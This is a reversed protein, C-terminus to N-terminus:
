ALREVVIRNNELWRKIPLKHRRKTIAYICNYASTRQRKNDFDLLLYKDTSNYYWEIVAKTIISRPRKVYENTSRIKVKEEEIKNLKQQKLLKNKRKQLDYEILEETTQLNNRLLKNYCNRCLGRAYYKNSNCVDCKRDM